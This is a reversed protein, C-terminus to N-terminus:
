EPVKPDLTSIKKKRQSFKAALFDIFTMTMVIAVCLIARYTFFSLLISHSSVVFFRLFPIVCILYLILYKKNKKITYILCLVFCIIAVIGGYKKLLAFPLLKSFSLNIASFIKGILSGNLAHGFMNGFISEAAAPGMFIFSIIWKAIFAGAYGIGWM